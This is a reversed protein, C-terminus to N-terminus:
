LEAVCAPKIKLGVWGRFSVTYGGIDLQYNSKSSTRIVITASTPLDSRLIKVKGDSQDTDRIFPVLGCFFKYPRCSGVAFLNVVFPNREGWSATSNWRMRWMPVGSDVCNHITVHNPGCAASLTHYQYQTLSLPQCWSQLEIPSHSIKGPFSHILTQSPANLHM